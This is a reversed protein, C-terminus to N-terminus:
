ECACTGRRHRQVSDVRVVVGDLKWGKVTAAIAAHTLDDKSLALARRLASAKDAPLRELALGVSCRTGRKIQNAFFQDLGPDAVSPEDM